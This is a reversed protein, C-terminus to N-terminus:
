QQLAQMVGMPMIQNSFALELDHDWLVQLDINDKAEAATGYLGGIKGNSVAKEITYFTSGIYRPCSIYFPFRDLEM